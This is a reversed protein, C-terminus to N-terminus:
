AAVEDGDDAPRQVGPTLIGVNGAVLDRGKVAVMNSPVLYTGEPDGEGQGTNKWFQQVSMGGALVNKRWRDEIENQDGLLARIGAMDFGIEDVGPFEATLGIRGADFRRDKPPSNWPGALRGFLPIMTEDWFSERAARKQAYSSNQMGVRAGIIEPPVGFPMLIRAENIEDLSPVVLGSPGLNQTMPTFTSEMQDIIMLAHWGSPGGYDSRFRNKIEEKTTDSLQGKVSLLGAPVGASKFFSKTFDKMYNDIDIRGAAAMITPMGYFESLPNDTKWHIVDEVPIPFTTGDGMAFEYHSIWKQSDPVIRVRDPRMRWIQVVKTSGSRVKLGYSNGALDLDMVKTAEFEARNMFPNPYELLSVSQHERTWKDGIRARISPESASTAREQIAAFVLENKSYGERAFGEYTMAPLEARGSQFSSIAMKSYSGPAALNRVTKALIGM